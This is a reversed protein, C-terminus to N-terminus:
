FRYRKSISKVFIYGYGSRAEETGKYQFLEPEIALTKIEKMEEKQCGSFIGLLFLFQLIIFIKKM